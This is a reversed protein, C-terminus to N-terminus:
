KHNQAARLAAKLVEEMLKSSGDEHWMDHADEDYEYVLAWCKDCRSFTTEHDQLCLSRYM